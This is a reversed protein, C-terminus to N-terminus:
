SMRPDFLAVIVKNMMRATLVIIVFLLSVTMLLGFNANDGSEVMLHGLGKIGFVDEVIITAGIFYPIKSVLMSSMPVLAARAVHAPVSASRIRVAQIFPQGLIKGLELKFLRVLEGTVGSGVSLVFAAVSYPFLNEQFSNRPDIMPLLNFRMFFSYLVIAIFFVPIAGSFYMLREIAASLIKGPYLILFLAIALSLALTLLLTLSVVIITQELGSEVSARLHEQTGFEGAFNGHLAANWWALYAHMAGEGSAIGLKEKQIEGTAYFAVFFIMATSLLLIGASILAEQVVTKLLKM